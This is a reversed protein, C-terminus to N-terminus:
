RRPSPVPARVAGCRNRRLRASDFSLHLDEEPTNAPHLTWAAVLPFVKLIDEQAEKNHRQTIWGGLWDPMEETGEPPINQIAEILRRSFGETGPDELRLTWEVYGTTDAGVLRQPELLEAPKAIWLGFAVALGIVLLVMAGCGVACGILIRKNRSAM